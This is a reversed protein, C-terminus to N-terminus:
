RGVSRWRAPSSPPEPTALSPPLTSRAARAPRPSSRAIARFRRATSRCPEAASRFRAARQALAGDLSVSLAGANVTTGGSYANGGNNLYVTGAGNIVLAGGSAGTILSGISAVHGNDDLIATVNNAIYFTRQASLVSPTDQTFMIASNAAFTTTNSNDGLSGGSRIGVTGSNIITGGIYNNNGDDLDLVGAGVKNIVGNGTVLGNITMTVGTSSPDTVGITATVGNNLSFTRTSDVSLSSTSRMILAGTGNFTVNAGSAPVNGFYGNSALISVTGSNIVMGGSYSNGLATMLLTGGGSKVLEGAFSTQGASDVLASISLNSGSNVYLVMDNAGTWAIASGITSNGGTAVIGGVAGNLIPTNSGFSLTATSSTGSMTGAVLKLGSLTQTGSVASTIGNNVWVGNGTPAFSSTVTQYTAATVGATASYTALDVTTPSQIIVAGNLFGPTANLATIFLNRGQAGTGAGVAGNADVGVTLISGMTRSLTAMTVSTAASGAAGTFSITNTGAAVNLTGFADTVATGGNAVWQMTGNVLNFSATSLLRNSVATGSNDLKFVAGSLTVSDVLQSTTGTNLKAGNTLAFIGNGFTANRQTGGATSITMTFGASGDVTLTNGGLSITASSGSISMASLTQNAGAALVMTGNVTLTSDSGFANAVNINYIGSNTLTTGGTYLGATNFNLTGGLGGGNYAFSLTGSSSGLDSLVGNITTTFGAITLTRATTDLDQILSSSNAGLILTSGAIASSFTRNSGSVYTNGTVNVNIPASTGTFSTGGGIYLQQAAISIVGSSVSSTVGTTGTISLTQFSQNANVVLNTSVGVTPSTSFTNAANLVFVAASTGQLTVTGTNAAASNITLSGAFLSGTVFSLVGGSTVGDRLVSNLVFNNTGSLSFTLANGVGSAIQVSNASSAGITVLGGSNSIGRVQGVSGSLLMDGFFSVNNAGGATVISITSTAASGVFNYQGSFTLSAATALTNNMSMSSVIDTVAASITVASATQMSITATSSFNLTSGSITMAAGGNNGLVLGALSVTGLDNNATFAASNGNNNGFTLVVGSGTPGSSPASGGVWNATNSWNYTGPTTPDIFTYTGAGEVDSELMAAAAVVLLLVARRSIMLFRRM